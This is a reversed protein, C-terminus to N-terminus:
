SVERKRPRFLRFMVPIALGGAEVCDIPVWVALVVFSLGFNIQPRAGGAGSCRSQSGNGHMGAGLIRPSGRQQFTEGIMVALEKDDPPASALTRVLCKGLQDLSWKAQSFFRCSVSVHNREGSEGRPVLKPMYRRVRLFETIQAQNSTKIWNLLLYCANSFSSATFVPYSIQVLSRITDM